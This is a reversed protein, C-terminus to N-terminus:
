LQASLKEISPVTYLRYNVSPIPEISVFSESALLHDGDALLPRDFDPQVAGNFFLYIYM